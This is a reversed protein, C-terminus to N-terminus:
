APAQDRRARRVSVARAGHLICVGALLCVALVIPRSRDDVRADQLRAEAAFQARVDDLARKEPRPRLPVGAVARAANLRGAGTQADPGPDGIDDATEVIRQVIEANTMGRAALLAAVGSVFAVAMSTGCGGGYAARHSRPSWYTSIIANRTTCADDGADRPDGGGPAVLDLGEGYNSYAARRDGRTSAGVVLVGPVTADYAARPNGGQAINGSAIAVLVGVAAAERIAADVGADRLLDAPYMMADERLGAEQALSLNIIDAGQEVSWRIGEEVSRSSGSGRRGLVRVPLIRAGPAVSAVGIGNRARAAVIGAILTGHGNDDRADADGDAFDRGPLVGGRLDPHNADVGTDLVAVVVGAGTSTEWAREADIVRLGWQKPRGPDDPPAAFAPVPIVGAAALVVCILRRM